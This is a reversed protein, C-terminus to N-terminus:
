SSHSVKGLRIRTNYKITMERIKARIAEEPPVWDTDKTPKGGDYQRVESHAKTMNSEQVVQFIESGDIGLVVFTGIAYYILDALADSISTLDEAQLMEMIEEIMWSVRLKFYKEEIMEPKEGVPFGYKRHFEEVAKQAEDFMAM